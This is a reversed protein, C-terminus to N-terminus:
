APLYLQLFALTKAWAAKSASENWFMEAEHNDFAHGANEVNLVFGERGAIAAGVADVGDNPIYPDDNGFHFLTPCSVQDIMGIMSPVGSGYYSICVSPSDNVALAWALTGGLCFGIVGPAATVGPQAGLHAMAAACDGVAAPFDLQQVKEMSGMLGAEDHDAAWNRHFRWFVDPAGVLYGAEALREGVSRIYPGVGFIEQVLLMAAKPPADPVWVHLDMAGDDGCQVQDTRLTTM